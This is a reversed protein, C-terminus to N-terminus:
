YVRITIKLFIMEFRSLSQALERRLKAIEDNATLNECSAKNLARQLDGLEQSSEYGKVKNELMKNRAAFRNLEMEKKKLQAQLKIRLGEIDDIRESSKKKVLEDSEIDKKLRAIESEQSQLASKLKTIVDNAALLQTKSNVNEARLSSIIDETLSVQAESTTVPPALIPVDIRARDLDLKM